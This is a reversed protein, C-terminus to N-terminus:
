TLHLITGLTCLTLSIGFMGVAMNFLRLKWMTIRANITVQSAIDLQLDKLEHKERAGEDLYKEVIADVLQRASYKALHGFFYLNDSRAPKGHRMAKLRLFDTRPSFSVIGIVASVAFGFGGLTLLLGPFFSFGGQNLYGLLIAVAGSGFGVAGGNKAEAFKLWENVAQLLSVLRSEVPDASGVQVKLVQDGLDLMTSM